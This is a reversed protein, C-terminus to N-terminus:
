QWEIANELSDFGKPRGAILANMGALAELASGSVLRATLTAEPLLHPCCFPPMSWLFAPKGEVVDIMTLGSVDGVQAQVQPCADVVVSGGQPTPVSHM